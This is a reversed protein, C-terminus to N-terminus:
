KSENMYQDVSKKSVRYLKGIKVAHIKKSRLLKYATSRGISLYVMLDEVTFIEGVENDLQIM